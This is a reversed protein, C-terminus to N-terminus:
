PECLPSQYDLKRYKYSSYFCLLYILSLAITSYLMASKIGNLNGLVALLLGALPVSIQHIAVSVSTVKALMAENVLTKRLVRLFLSNILTFAIVLGYAILFIYFGDLRSCIYAAILLGITGFLSIYYAREQNIYNGVIFMAIAGFSGAVINLLGFEIDGKSFFLKVLPAGAAEVISIIFNIFCAQLSFLLLVPFSKFVNIADKIASFFSEKSNQSDIKDHCTLNITNFLNYLYFFPVIFLLHEIRFYAILFVAIAPGILMSVQDAMTFYVAIHTYRETTTNKMLLVDGAVLTQSTGISCIAALIGIMIAPNIFSNTSIFVLTILCASIKCLDITILTKKSGFKDTLYGGFPLFIVRPLWEIFYALGSASISHTTNFVILPLAFLLIHDGIFVLLLSFIFRLEKL